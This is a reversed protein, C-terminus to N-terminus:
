CRSLVKGSYDSLSVAQGDPTTLTFNPAPQGALLVASSQAEGDSFRTIQAQAQQANLWENYVQQREEPAAGAMIVQTTFEEMTFLEGVWWNLDARSAGVQKLAEDLAEDGYTGFLLDVRSERFEDDLSFGERVAAQLIIQRTVLQNLAEEEARTLDEGKLPPLPETVNLRSVKLERDVMEQTIAVGNVTALQQPGASEEPTTNGQLRSWGLVVGLIIVVIVVFITWVQKWRSSSKSM